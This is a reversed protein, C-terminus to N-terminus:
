FNGTEEKYIEIFRWLSRITRYECDETKLRNGYAPKDRLTIEFIFCLGNIETQVIGNQAFCEHQHIELWATVCQGLGDVTDPTGFHRKYGNKFASQKLNSLADTNRNVSRQDLFSTLDGRFKM